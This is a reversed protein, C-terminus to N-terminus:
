ARLLIDFIVYARLSTIKYQLDRRRDVGEADVLNDVVAAVQALKRDHNRARVKRAEDVSMM